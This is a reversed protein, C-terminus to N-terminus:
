GPSPENKWSRALFLVGLTIMAIGAWRYADVSEGLMWMSLFGVFVYELANMPLAWSVDAWSLIALWLLFYVLELVIGLVVWPNTAAAFFFQALAALHYEQLPGVAQMGMRLVTNGLGACLVLVCVAVTSRIM